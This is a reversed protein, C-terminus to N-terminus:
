QGTALMKQLNNVIAETEDDSLIGEIYSLIVNMKGQFQNFFIGLGPPIPLRPMHFINNIKNEMFRPFAYSAEGVHAFCFSAIEGKLHVRILYSLLPLPAIRTLFAAQSIDRPLGSKVQDYMQQKITELVASFSDVEEAKIRFLFFSMHNFFMEQQAKEPTRMDISVPVIYDGSKIGRTTFIKHLVQVSVALVYPMLMLYGAEKNIAEIIANTQQENFSILKFKFNRNNDETPLPLVRPPANEALRLFVRNVLKGAKFKDRWDCLHAPEVFSINQSCNGGEELEQQFVSLFAEAGCADFLRHDFTMALFSKEAGYLFHFALHEHVSKFPMNVSQELISFANDNNQSDGLQFVNFSLPRIQGPHPIEWYPALNYDRVPWGNVIPHKEVFSTLSKRFKDEVLAGEIELVVQSINGVGTVQRTMYDLAHIVWDIGTLYRKNSSFPIHVM